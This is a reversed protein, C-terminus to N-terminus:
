QARSSLPAQAISFLDPGDNRVFHLLNLVALGTLGQVEHLGSVASTLGGTWAMRARFPRRTRGQPPRRGTGPAIRAGTASARGQVDALPTLPDARRHPWRCRRRRAK